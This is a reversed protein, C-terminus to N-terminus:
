GDSRELLVLPFGVLLPALPLVAGEGRRGPRVQQGTFVDRFTMSAYSAPLELSTEEYASALGGPSELASLTYRPAVTLVLSGEHERAFAVAADARPGSLSLAQYGGQRFLAASRQRLRLGEALVFLKIRGDEMRETLHACLGVRNRAAEQDLATLLRERLGYDVPRRNDPDVLSLDWLECGQYTDVVGPSMLKLLLQGLANHQGAREIRQKFALVDALFAASKGQDLCSEVFRAVGEEYDKDPNTWSTRVKAEKIAKLMYERIRGRLEELAAPSLPEGGMPWAGVVTQYFLYEDNLSPAPGEPMEARHARTLSSWFEVRERWVDPLESLVVLRARVDESRKTDHTSSTLMSAPWHAAREHNREHFTAATTGFHEPEGGVENLACLRHYVYFTTDELGKAMVPGTLQQMKMAFSLMEARENAGLHEPYRRLLVDGLFDFISVNLTANRAKAHRLTDKIYRVDRADLETQTDDVYTRYVPFLAIFEALARRLSNLTFDRTRRNLESIRNLRHALLNLESSMFDRLILRKKEYVLDDFDMAEGIFRQYTETMPGEAAPQVFIGSVANAFRYGTTGHVAWSDPIRERGGQIKEVSVFLARRLPSDTRAGAEAHWRARLGQEVEPWAEARAGHEADFLARARELFYREQLQLFYATPDYLGDPHDIRLGTVQGKRLWEFILQHAEAFVEPEEMRIAALGNIDFFRRYNIEEGAVRWQALRYSGAQLMQDLVDFSRPDGPTGNLAEVNAAIHRAVEPSAAALAALRRKVVEKERNREIVQERRTETREPLHRIATLISHLEIIDPHGAGMREELAELGRELVRAYQRPALPLLREYYNVVFAGERFGLKLEGKELVVGYQDGLVPLLVKGELEDKVPSWDIDFFRAYVSAPGNELVDFWLPNFSEIGMHNPVVDLVQGLGHERLADCLSTHQAASGVEPNLRKHNVCDYGHTSGPSAELYPSCYLDSLGLRSLYPVIGRADEFTFGKHLQVRYTSLPTHQGLVAQRTRAFLASTLAEVGSDGTSGGSVTTGDLRM